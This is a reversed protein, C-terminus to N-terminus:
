LTFHVTSICLGGRSSGDPMLTRTDQMALGPSPQSATPLSFPPALQAGPLQQVSPQRSPRPSVRPSPRTSPRPSTHPSTSAQLSAQPPPAAHEPEAEQGQDEEDEDVEPILMPPPPPLDFEHVPAAASSSSSTRSTPQSAAVPMNATMTARRTIEEMLAGMGGGSSTPAARAGRDCPSPAPPAPVLGPGVPSSPSVAGANMTSRRKQKQKAALLQAAFSGRPPPPM